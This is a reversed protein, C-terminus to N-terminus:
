QQIRLIPVNVTIFDPKVIKIDKLTSVVKITTHINETAQNIFIPSTRVYNIKSLLSSKGTILAFSPSLIIEGAIKYESAPLGQLYSIIPVWKSDLKELAIDTNDKGEFGTIEIDTSKPIEIFEKRIDILYESPGYDKLSIEAKIDGYKITLLNKGMGSIRISIDEVKNSIVLGYPIDTFIVPINIVREQIQYLQSLFWIAIAFILSALKVGPHAFINRIFGTFRNGM